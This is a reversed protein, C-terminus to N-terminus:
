SIEGDKPEPDSRGAGRPAQSNRRAHNSARRWVTPSSKDLATPPECRVMLPFPTRSSGIVFFQRYSFGLRRAEFWARRRPLDLPKRGTRAASKRITLGAAQLSSIEERDAWSLQDYARGM